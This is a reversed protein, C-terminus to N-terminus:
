AWVDSDTDEDTDDVSTPDIEAFQELSRNSWQDIMWFLEERWGPCASEWIREEKGFVPYMVEILWADLSCVHHIWQRWILEHSEEWGAPKRPRTAPGKLLLAPTKQRRWVYEMLLKLHARKNVGIPIRRRKLFEHTGHVVGAIDDVVLEDYRSNSWLAPWNM